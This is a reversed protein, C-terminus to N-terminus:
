PANRLAVPLYTCCCGSGRLAPMAPGLLRYDGGGSAGRVQWALSTLSYRGGTAHGTEVVYLGGPQALAATGLILLAVIATLVLIRRKM